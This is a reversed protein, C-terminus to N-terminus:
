KLSALSTLSSESIAALRPSSLAPRSTSRGAAPNLLEIQLKHSKAVTTLLYDCFRNTELTVRSVNGRHEAIRIAQLVPDTVQFRQRLLSSDLKSGRLDLYIRDPNTLRNIEYQVNEDVDITVTTATLGSRYQVDSVVLIPDSLEAAREHAKAFNVPERKLSVSAPSATAIATQPLTSGSTEGTDLRVIHIAGFPFAALIVAILISLGHFAPCHKYLWRKLAQEVSLANYLVIYFSASCAIFLWIFEPHQQTTAYSRLMIALTMVAYVTALLQFVLGAGTRKRNSEKTLTNATRAKETPESLELVTMGNLAIREGSHM